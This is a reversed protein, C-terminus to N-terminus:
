TGARLEQRLVTVVETSKKVIIVSANTYDTGASM